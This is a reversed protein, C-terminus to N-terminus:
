AHPAAVHEVYRAMCSLDAHGRLLDLIRAIPM